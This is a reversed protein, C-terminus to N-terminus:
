KDLVVEETQTDDLNEQPLENFRLDVWRTEPIDVPNDTDAVISVTEFDFRRKYTKISLDGNGDDSYNIAFLPNKNADQPIEIYWGDNSLGTTNKLLYDGVGLRKFEIGQLEVDEGQHELRDSFLRTVPSKGKLFGNADKTVNQTSYISQVKATTLTKDGGNGSETNYYVYQLAGANYTSGGILLQGYRGRLSVFSGVIDDAEYFGSQMVPNGAPTTAAINIKYEAHSGIGFAGVQMVNGAEAGVLRNAAHATNSFNDKVKSWLVFENDGTAGNGTGPNPIQIAM